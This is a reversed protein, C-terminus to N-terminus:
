REGPTKKPYQSIPMRLDIATTIIRSQEDM